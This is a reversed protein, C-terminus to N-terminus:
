ENKITIIISACKQNKVWYELTYTGPNPTTAFNLPNQNQKGNFSCGSCKWEGNLKNGKKDRAIFFYGTIGVQSRVSFSSTSTYNPNKPNKADSPNDFDSNKAYAIEGNVDVSTDQGSNAEKKAIMYTQQSIQQNDLYAIVTVQTDNDPRNDVILNNNKDVHAIGSPQVTFTIENLTTSVDTNDNNSLIPNIPFSQKIPSLYPKMTVKNAKPPKYEELKYQERALEKGDLRAIVTFSSETRPKDNRYKDNIKLLTHATDFEIYKEGEGEIRWSIDELKTSTKESEGHLLKPKLNFGDTIYGSEPAQALEIKDAPKSKPWFILYAAALLIIVAVAAVLKVPPKPKKNGNGNGNDGSNSADNEGKGGWIWTWKGSKGNEKKTQNESKSEQPHEIRGNKVILIENNAQKILVDRNIPNQFIGTSSAIYVDDYEKISNEIAKFEDFNPIALLLLEKEKNNNHATKINEENFNNRIKEEEAASWQTTKLANVITDFKFKNNTDLFAQAFDEWLPMLLNVLSNTLDFGKDSKIGVGFVIGPRDSDYGHCRRYVEWGVIDDKRYYHFVPENYDVPKIIPEHHSNETEQVKHVGFEFAYSEFSRPKGFVVVEIM